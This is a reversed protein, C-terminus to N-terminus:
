RATATHPRGAAPPPLKLGDLEVLGSRGRRLVEGLADAVASIDYPKSIFGDCGARRAITEDPTLAHATVAIVIIDATTPDAKLLRTAEWGGIGPMQLDMLVVAPHSARAQALADEGNVAEIVVFGRFTLYEALMERGDPSDDVILVSRRAETM